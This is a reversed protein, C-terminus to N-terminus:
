AYTRVWDVEFVAPRLGGAGTFNDLQINLHGSPMAQLDARGGPGAGGSLRFWETGDVYGVLATPSWEFAFNHWQTMDVPCTERYVKDDSPSKPYHLFASLCQADPNAYEVWDYEGDVLRRGSTPWILHLPHYLGGSAGTNRSRSRIEWKGYQRDLKQRLWGTDGNAEGTMTMIGGAVASNKACRRGNGAHGEWCGATGGVTGSPVSWKAPDVPGTYDFEDSIPLPAGWGYRVAAQSQDGPPATTTTTTPSTTTTTTPDTTTTTTPDTPTHAGARYDCATARFTAGTASYEHDSLVNARVAGAPATFQAAVRTWGTTGFSVWAGDVHGLYGSNDGEPTSYWDVEVRARGAQTAGLDYGFTWREGAKVPQQPLYLSPNVVSNNKQAYAFRASQHDTVAERVPAAGRLSGWEALSKNLVPNNCTSVNTGAPSQAVSVGGVVLAGAVGVASGVALWRRWHVAM